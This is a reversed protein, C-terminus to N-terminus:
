GAKAGMAAELEEATKPIGATLNKSGTPTILVDDEIRIGMKRDPFYVGPEVTIVMGPKLPGDPLVGHVEIGLPHGTGHIFADGHGAQDIVARAAADM